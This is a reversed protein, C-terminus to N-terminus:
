CFFDCMPSEQAQSRRWDNRHFTRDTIRNKPFAHCYYRIVKRYMTKDKLQNFIFPDPKVNVEM